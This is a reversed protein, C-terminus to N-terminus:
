TVFETGNKSKTFKQSPHNANVWMTTTTTTQKINRRRNDKKQWEVM